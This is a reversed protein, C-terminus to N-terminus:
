RIDGKTNCNLIYDYVDIASVLKGGRYVKIDRLTGIKSIGGAMYLANFATSFSSLTYTGPTVVEGMVQVQVSRAETLTLSIECDSYFQGLKGSLLKNASTVTLGSIKIPGVGDIVVHGDANVETEISEQSAGWINITVLDGTGIIYNAPTAINVPAQFSLNESSFINRGFVQRQEEESIGIIEDTSEGMLESDDQELGLEQARNEAADMLLEDENTGDAAGKKKSKKKTNKQSKSDKKSAKGAEERLKEAKKRVRQLQTTTVGKKLLEAAMKQQSTGKQTETVLYKLVQDDTMSSQAMASISILLITAFAILKNKM